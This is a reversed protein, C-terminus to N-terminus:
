SFDSCYCSGSIWFAVNCKEHVFCSRQVNSHIETHPKINVSKPSHYKLICTNHNFKYFFFFFIWFKLISYNWSLSTYKKFYFQQLFCHDTKIKFCCKYIAEAKEKHLQLSSIFIATYVMSAHIIKNIAKEGGELALLVKSIKFNHM